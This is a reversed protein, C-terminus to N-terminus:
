ELTVVKPVKALEEGKSRITITPNVEEQDFSGMWM